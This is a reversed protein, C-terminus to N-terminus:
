LAELAQLVSDLVFPVVETSEVYFFIFVVFSYFITINIPNDRSFEHCEHSRNLLSIGILPIAMVRLLIYFYKLLKTNLSNYSEILLFIILLIKDFVANSEIIQEENISRCWWVINYILKKLHSLFVKWFWITSGYSDMTFSTKTSCSRKYAEPSHLLVLYRSFRKYAPNSNCPRTWNQSWLM